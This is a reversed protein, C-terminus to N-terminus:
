KIGFSDVIPWSKTARNVVSASHIGALQWPRLSVVLSLNVANTVAHRLCFMSIVNAISEAKLNTFFVM